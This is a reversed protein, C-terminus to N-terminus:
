ARLVVLNARSIPTKMSAEQEVVAGTWRVRDSMWPRRVVDSSAMKMRNRSRKDRLTVPSVIRASDRARNQRITVASATHM